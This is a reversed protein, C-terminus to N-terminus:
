WCEDVASTGRVITGDVPIREAPASSSGFMESACQMWPSRRSPGTGGSSAPRRPGSRRHAGPRAATQRTARAELANGILVLAIIFVVAEYYADASGAASSCIRVV